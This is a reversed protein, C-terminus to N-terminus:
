EPDRYAIWRGPTAADPQWVAFLERREGDQVIEELRGCFRNITQIARAYRATLLRARARQRRASPPSRVGARKGGTAAASVKGTMPLKAPKARSAPSADVTSPLLLLLIALCVAGGGRGSGFLKASLRSAHQWLPSVSEM